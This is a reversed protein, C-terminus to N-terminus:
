NLIVQGYSYEQITVNSAVLFLGFSSIGKFMYCQRLCHIKEYIENKVEKFMMFALEKQDMFLLDAECLTSAIVPEGSESKTDRGIDLEGVCDGEYLTVTRFIDDKLHMHLQVQGNVIIYKMERSLVTGKEALKYRMRPYLKMRFDRSFSKFFKMGCLLNDVAVYDPTENVLQRGMEKRFIHMEFISLSAIAGSRQTNRLRHLIRRIFNNM